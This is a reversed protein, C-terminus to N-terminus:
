TIFGQRNHNILDYLFQLEQIWDHILDLQDIPALDRFGHPVSIYGTCTEWDSKLNVNSNSM